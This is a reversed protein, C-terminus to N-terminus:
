KIVRDARAMVTPPITLDIRKAANLNIILEFKKAQEVSHRRAKDRQTDQRRLHGRAPGLGQCNVGYAMLGGAEVFARGETGYIVPLRTKVALEIIKNSSVGLVGGSVLM